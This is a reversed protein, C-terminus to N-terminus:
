FSKSKTLPGRGTEGFSGAGLGIVGKPITAYFQAAPGLDGGKTQNWKTDVNRIKTQWLGPVEDEMFQVPTKKPCPVGYGCSSKKSKNQVRHGCTKLDYVQDTYSTGHVRSDPDVVRPLLIDLVAGGCNNAGCAESKCAKKFGLQAKKDKICHAFYEYPQQKAGWIGASNAQEVLTNEMAKSYATKAQGKGMFLTLENGYRSLVRPRWNADEASDSFPLGVHPLLLPVPLGMLTPVMMLWESQDLRTAASGTRAGTGRM